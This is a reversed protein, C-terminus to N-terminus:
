RVRRLLPKHLASGDTGEGPIADSADWVQGTQVGGVRALLSAASREPTLLMGQEYRTVFRHHLEAGVRAPDQSRIWAQMETDVGGPRFVNATVGTGAVEAALNLTHAELAAKTTTYANARPMSGPQAAVSSSVNVIRGWGECLMRPLLAFTLRAVATVNIALAAAWQDVDVEVSSGLPWVVAANNVLIEVPGWSDAVTSIAERVQEPANVDALLALATSGGQSAEAVTAALEDASRALVAVRAGMSALGLAIARGIGRGGGTVLAVRGTVSTNTTEMVENTARIRVTKSPSATAANRRLCPTRESTPRSTLAV